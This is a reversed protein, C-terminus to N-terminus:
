AGIEDDPLGDEGEGSGTWTVVIEGFMQTQHCVIWKRKMLELLALLTVVVEHRGAREGLLEAFLRLRGDRSDQLAKVVHRIRDKVSIEYRRIAVTRTRDAMRRMAKRYALALDDVRLGEVPNAPRAPLFATLDMPERTYVLSREQQRDNLWAAAAKYKRYEILKRILEERPDIDEGNGEETESPEPPPAKPLLERSKIVLLTAAMVLFESTVELEMEQMAALYEFYQDAIDSIRIDRIDIEARDILHLLLDLPGEFVQLRYLVTM